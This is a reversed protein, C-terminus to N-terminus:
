LQFIQFNLVTNVYQKNPENRLIRGRAKKRM